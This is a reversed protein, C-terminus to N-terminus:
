LINIKKVFTGKTGSNVLNVLDKQRIALEQKWIENKAEIILVDGDLNIPKCQKSIKSGVISAWNSFLLEKQVKETLKYKNLLNQMISSLDRYTKKPTM